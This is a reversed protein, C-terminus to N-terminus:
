PNWFAKKVSIFFFKIIRFQGHIFWWFFTKVFGFNHYVIKINEWAIYIAIKTPRKKIQYDTLVRNSFFVNKDKKLFIKCIMDFGIQIKYQNNFGNFKKVTDILFWCSQINIPIKGKKFFDFSFNITEPSSIEDRRLFASCTLDPYRKEEILKKLYALVYKSIYREGSFLFHIYKGKALEVGKNMMQSLEDDEFHEIIKIKELYPKLMILDRKTKATEIIIIEYSFQTQEVISKLTLNALHFFDNLLFVISVLPKENEM